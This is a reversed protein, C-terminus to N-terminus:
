QPIVQITYTKKIPEWAPDNYELVITATKNYNETTKDQNISFILNHKKNYVDIYLQIDNNILFIEDTDGEFYIEVWTLETCDLLFKKTPNNTTLTVDDLNFDFDCNNYSTDDTIDGSSSDGSDSNNSSSDGSSSDNGNTVSNEANHITGSISSGNGCGYVIFMIVLIFVINKM